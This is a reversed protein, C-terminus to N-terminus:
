HKAIQTSTNSAIFMANTSQTFNASADIVGSMIGSAVSAKSSTGIMEAVGFEIIGQAALARESLALEGFM